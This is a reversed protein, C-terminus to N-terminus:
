WYTLVDWFIHTKLSFKTATKMCKTVVSASSKFQYNKLCMIEKNDGEGWGDM